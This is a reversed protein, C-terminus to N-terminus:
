AGIRRSLRWTAWSAVVLSGVWVVLGIMGLQMAAVKVAPAGLAWVVVKVRLGAAAVLGAITLTWGAVTLVAPIIVYWCLALAIVPPLAVTAARGAPAAPSAILAFLREPEPNGLAVVTGDLLYTPVAVVGEPLAGAVGVSAADVDVTRVELQPFRAAAAAALRRAEACSLCHSAVYVELRRAATRAHRAHPPGTETEQAARAHCSALALATVVGYGLYCALGGLGTDLEGAGTEGALACIHPRFPALALAQVAWWTVGLTAGLAGARLAGVRRAGWPGAGLARGVAAGLLAGLLIRMLWRPGMQALLAPPAPLAPSAVGSHSAGLLLMASLSVFALGGSVGALAGAPAPRGCWARLGGWDEPLRVVMARGRYTGAGSADAM